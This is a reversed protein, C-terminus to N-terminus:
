RYGDERRGGGGKTMVTNELTMVPTLFRIGVAVEVGISSRDVEEVEEVRDCSEPMGEGAGRRRTLLSDGTAGSRRRNLSKM